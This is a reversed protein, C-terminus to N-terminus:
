IGPIQKWCWETKLSKVSWLSGVVSVLRGLHVKICWNEKRRNMQTKWSETGWETTRSKLNKNKLYSYEHSSILGINESQFGSMELFLIYKSWVLLHLRACYISLDKNLYIFNLSFCSWMIDNDWEGEKRKIEQQKKEDMRWWILDRKTSYENFPILCKFLSSFFFGKCDLAKCRCSLLEGVQKPSYPFIEVTLSIKMKFRVHGRKEDWCSCLCFFYWM